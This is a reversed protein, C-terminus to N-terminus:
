GSWPAEGRKASAVVGAGAIFAVVAYAAAVAGAVGALLAPSAPPDPLDHWGDAFAPLASPLFRALVLGTALGLGLAVAALVLYGGYSVRRITGIRMGQRRLAALEGGRVWREAVAAIAFSVVALGLAVAVILVLFTLATSPGRDDLEGRRDAITEDGLVDIGGAALERPVQASAHPGLWVQLTANRANSTLRDAYELDALLGQGVQPLAMGSVAARVPVVDSGIVASRPDARDLTVRGARV